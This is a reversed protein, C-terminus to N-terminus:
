SLAPRHPQSGGSLLAALQRLAQGRHSLRNKTVPDLQASTCSHEPLFFVPDYGFGQSGQPSRTIVGEWQGHCVLPVPDDAHRVLAM